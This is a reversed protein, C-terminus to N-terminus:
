ILEWGKLTNLKSNKTFFYISLEVLSNIQVKGIINNEYKICLIQKFFKILKEESSLGFELFEFSFLFDRVYFVQFEQSIYLTNEVLIKITQGDILQLAHTSVLAGLVMRFVRFHKGHFNKALFEEDNLFVFLSSLIANLSEVRTVDKILNLLFEFFSAGTLQEMKRANIFDYPEVEQARFVM